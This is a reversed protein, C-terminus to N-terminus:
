VLFSITHYTNHSPQLLSNLLISITFLNHGYRPYFYVYGSLLVDADALSQYHNGSPCGVIFSAPIITRLGRHGVPLRHIFSYKLKCM